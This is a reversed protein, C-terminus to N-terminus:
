QPIHRCFKDPFWVAGGSEHLSSETASRLVLIICYASLDCEDKREYLYM